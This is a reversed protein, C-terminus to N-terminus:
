VVDIFLLLFGPVDLCGYGMYRKGQFFFWMCYFSWWQYHEAFVNWLIRWPLSSPAQMLSTILEDIVSHVRRTQFFHHHMCEYFGSWNNNLGNINSLLWCDAISLFLCDSQSYWYLLQELAIKTMLSSSNKILFSPDIGSNLFSM